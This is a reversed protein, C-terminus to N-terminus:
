LNCLSLSCHLTEKNSHKRISVRVKALAKIENRKGRVTKKSLM